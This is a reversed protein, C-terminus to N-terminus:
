AYCPPLTMPQHGALRILGVSNLGQREIIANLAHTTGISIETIRKPPRGAKHLLDKLVKRFGHEIPSTTTAKNWTIINGHGDILVADTHTGGIDIGMKLTDEMCTNRM